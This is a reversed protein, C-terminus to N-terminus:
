AFTIQYKSGVQSLIDELAEILANLCAYASFPLWTYKIRRWLIEILNLEPAYPPLYTIILGQKKWSPIRDEFAESRHISANDMVVVTKQTLTQCFADVCAIVVGTPRSGECLFPHLDNQRHM